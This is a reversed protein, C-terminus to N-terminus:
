SAEDGTPEVPDGPYRFMWAYKSLDVIREVLPELTPDLQVAQSGLSGLDHTKAFPLDHWVLLAKLAKEVAQQCHFVADETAPPDAALDIGAYRLDNSAKRLWAETDERRQPDPPMFSNARAGFRPPCRPECTCDSISSRGRGSWCISQREWGGSPGIDAVPTGFSSRAEM